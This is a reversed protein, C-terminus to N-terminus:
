QNAPKNASAGSVILSLIYCPVNKLDLPNLLSHGAELQGAVPKQTSRGVIRHGGDHDPANAQLGQAQAGLVDLQACLAFRSAEGM